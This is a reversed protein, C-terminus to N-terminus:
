IFLGFVTIVLFVVWALFSLFIGMQVRLFLRLMATKTTKSAGITLLFVILAAITLLVILITTIILGSTGFLLM